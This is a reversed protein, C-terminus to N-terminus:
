PAKQKFIFFVGLLDSSESLLQYFLATIAYLRKEIKM